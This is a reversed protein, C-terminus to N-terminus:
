EQLHDPNLEGCGLPPETVGTVSYSVDEEAEMTVVWATHVTPM